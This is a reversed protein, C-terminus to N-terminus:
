TGATRWACASSAPIYIGARGLFVHGSRAADTAESSILRSTCKWASATATRHSTGPLGYDKSWGKGEYFRAVAKDVAGVPVGIKATELAIEQGRKVTSWIERQRASPEGFIWTRPFGVSLRVGLLRYRALVFRDM